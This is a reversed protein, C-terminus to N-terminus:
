HAPAGTGVALWARLMDAAEPAEPMAVVRTNGTDLRLALAPGDRLVVSVFRPPWIVAVQVVDVARIRDVPLRWGVPGFMGLRVRVGRPTISIRASGFWLSVAAIVATGAAATAPGTLRLSLLGLGVALGINFLWYTPGACVKAIWVQRLPGNVRTPDPLGAVARQGIAAVLAAATVAGIVPVVNQQWDADPARIAPAGLNATVTVTAAVGLYGGVLYAAPAAYEWFARRAAGPLVAHVVAGSLWVAAWVVAWGNALAVPSQRPYVDASRTPLQGAFLHAPVVILALLLGPLAVLGLAQWARRRTKVNM